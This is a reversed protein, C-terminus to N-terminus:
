QCVEGPGDNIMACTKGAPCSKNPGCRIVCSSNLSGQTMGSYSECKAPPVCTEAGCKEGAPTASAAVPPQGGAPKPAPDVSPPGPSQPTTSPSCSATLVLLVSLLRIWM